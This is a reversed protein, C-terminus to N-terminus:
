IFFTMIRYKFLKNIFLTLINVEAPDIVSSHGIVSEIGMLAILKKETEQLSVPSPGGGGTGKQYNRL